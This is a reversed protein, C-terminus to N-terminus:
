GPVVEAGAGALEELAAQGDGPLLEVARTLGALVVVAFGEALADLATHKVCYDTALGVVVVRQAGKERLLGTLGTPRTAGSLPDRVGFGSYGDEGATGKRVVPGAVELGFALQAGWSGALCHVPWQGGDKAFHPTVTPHWDQTYAVVAGAGLAQRVEASIPVVVEEARRVYLSGLPDAFDNQLDVVVLADGPGYRV